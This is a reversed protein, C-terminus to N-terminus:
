KANANLENKQTKFVIKKSEKKQLNSNNNNQNVTAKKPSKESHNKSHYTQPAFTCEKMQEKDQAMRISDLEINKIIKQIGSYEIPLKNAPYNKTKSTDPKFTCTSESTESKVPTKALAQNALRSSKKSLYSKPKPLPQEKNKNKASEEQRKLFDNFDNSHQSVTKKQEQKEIQNSKPQNRKLFLDFEEKKIEKRKNQSPDTEKMQNKQKINESILNGDEDWYDNSKKPSKIPSPRYYCIHKRKQIEDEYKQEEADQLFKKKKLILKDNRQYFESLDTKKTSSVNEKKAQNDDCESKNLEYLM